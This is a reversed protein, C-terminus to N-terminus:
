DDDDDVTMLMKPAESDKRYMGDSRALAAKLVLNGTAIISQSVDIVADTKRIEADLDEGKLNPDDLARLRAFLIDEKPHHRKEPYADLYHIMAEFLRLDPQLRGSVVEKLMFRVAHLIAALSQHEDGLIRLAEM